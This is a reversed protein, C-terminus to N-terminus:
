HYWCYVPATVHDTDNDDLWLECDIQQQWRAVLKNGKSNDFAIWLYPEERYFGQTLNKKSELAKQSLDKLRRLELKAKKHKLIKM